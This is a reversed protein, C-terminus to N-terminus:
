LRLTIQGDSMGMEVQTQRAALLHYLLLFQVQDPQVQAADAGTKLTEWLFPAPHTPTAPAAIQWRPAPGAPPGPAAAAGVMATLAPTTVRIDGGRPLASELCLMALFVEQVERRTTTSDPTWHYACRRGSGLDHLIGVIEGAAATHDTGAMGFALRMFRLRASAHVASESIMALEGSGASPMMTLLELGNQIAGVPSTLDHCIRSGILRALILRDDGM